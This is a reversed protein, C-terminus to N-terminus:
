NRSIHCLQATTIYLLNFILRYWLFCEDIFKLKNMFRKRGNGAIIVNNTLPKVWAWPKIGIILNDFNGFRM